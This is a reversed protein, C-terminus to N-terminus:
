HAAVARWLKLAEVTPKVDHVRVIKAGREVAMLALAVSANMRQEMPLDLLAGIMSKRSLGVLVPCNLSELLSLSKLLQFNHTLTKGFGFGPDIIIKERTLGQSECAAIRAQLFEMVETIVSEYHPAQQMTKPSGQKHMLVVPLDTKIVAAIAQDAQLANVDNILGAGLDAAALMVQPKSTDVSIIVNLRSSIKEIIPLVRDLEQQLSVPEAGPRTSEGGIDIVTAGEQQMKEAQFLAQDLHVYRGGDSFSDPTVNLIGMVQPINSFLNLM